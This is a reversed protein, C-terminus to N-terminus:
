HRDPLTGGLRHALLCLVEAQQVQQLRQVLSDSLPRQAASECADIFAFPRWAGASVLKLVHVDSAPKELASVASALSAFAPHQGVRNFWYRANGYDPERRHMIGHLWSGDASHIGQSITHSEELHDHWLFAAGLVFGRTSEDLSMARAAQDVAARVSAASLAGPRRAPGLAPLTATDFLGRLSTPLGNKM